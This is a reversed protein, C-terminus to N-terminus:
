IKIVSSIDYMSSGTKRKMPQENTTQVITHLTHMLHYIHLSLIYLLLFDYLEIFSVQNHNHSHDQDIVIPTRMVMFMNMTNLYM